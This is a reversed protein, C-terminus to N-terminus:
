LLIMCDCVTFNDSFIISYLLFLISKYTLCRCTLFFSFFSNFYFSIKISDVIMNERKTETSLFFFMLFYLSLYFSDRPEQFWVSPAYGRSM